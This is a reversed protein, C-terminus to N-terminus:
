YSVVKTGVPCNNSIYTLDSDSLRICGGSSAARTVGPTTRRHFAYGRQMTNSWTIYHCVYGYQYGRKVITFERQPTHGKYGVVCPMKRVLRWEGQSGKFIYTALTYQSVWILAKTNSKYGRMNVFAEAQAKTYYMKKTYLNGYSLKSGAIKATYKGSIIATVNQKQKRSKTVVSTGKKLTKKKGNSLTVTVNSKLTATYYRAHVHGMNVAKAKAKVIKSFAGYAKQNGVGRVARVKFRYTEDEKLKKVTYMTKSTAAIKKYEKEGENYQYIEYGTANKVTNWKLLVRLDGYAGVRLSAVKGPTKVRVQVAVINSGEEALQVKGKNKNYSFIQYYYKQGSKLNQVLYQTKKTSGVKTKEGTEKDIRYIRYGEANSAKSWSLRASIEGKKIVRLSHVKGPTKAAAVAPVGLCFVMM